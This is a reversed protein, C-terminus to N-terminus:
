VVVSGNRALSQTPRPQRVISFWPRLQAVSVGCIRKGSKPPGVRSSIHIM